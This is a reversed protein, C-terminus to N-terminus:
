TFINGGRADAAPPKVPSAPRIPARQPKFAHDDDESGYLEMGNDQPDNPELEGSDGHGDHPKDVNYFSFEQSGIFRIIFTKFAETDHDKDKTPPRGVNEPGGEIAKMGYGDILFIWQNMQFDEINLSSLLEVLKIAEIILDTNERDTGGAESTRAEFVSILENLLHPWLKRLAETLTQLSLRILLM